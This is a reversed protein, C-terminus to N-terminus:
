VRLPLSPFDNKGARSMRQSVEPSGAASRLESAVELSLRGRELWRELDPDRTLRDRVREYAPLYVIERALGGGRHARSALLTASGSSAGLEVLSRATDVWTAGARVSLAALHRWGLEQRRHADWLGAREEILLARGEEDEAAGAAGVRFIGMPAARARVRPEAHGVIEHLAIRRGALPTHRGGSRVLVCGDGTAASSYLNQTVLVRIPLRRSGVEVRACALLSRPDHPEDSAVSDVAEPSLAAWTEAMERARRGEAIGPDPFRARALEVVSPTGVAIGLRAELLLEAARDVYLRGYPAGQEARDVIDELGRALAHLSPPAPAYEFKPEVPDGRCLAVELRGLEAALNSPLCRGLLAIRREAAALARSLAESWADSV